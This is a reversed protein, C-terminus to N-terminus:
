DSDTPSLAQVAKIAVIVAGVLSAFGLASFVWWLDAFREAIAIDSAAVAVHYHLAVPVAIPFAIALGIFTIGAVVFTLVAIAALIFIAAAAAPGPRRTRNPTTSFSATM